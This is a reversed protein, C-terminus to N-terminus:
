KEGKKAKPWADFGAKRKAECDALDVRGFGLNYEVHAKSM